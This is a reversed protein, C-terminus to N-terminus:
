EQDRSRGILYEKVREFFGKSEPLVDRNETAAFRRLLEEQERNLRKPIEVVVEVIQNGRRGHRLNPLGKGPLQFVTGHQTGPPIRLPASGTLTPVEVQGGLAAQTFSIPLRCILHDGDRQLFPHERVRIVCRLDGRGTGHPGPEGEGRLRISQGDHVGAPIKVELVRERRTRGSGGCSQCPKQVLWGRGHCRPCDVIARSVFFGMSTQQEVQGYGGCTPCNRRQTGPECGQGGCRECFDMREFRLSKEVGTLVDELDIELVTQIDIGRDARARRGFADGFLDGLLDGFVSFIDDVAMGSFDHLGVGSLGAHGYRDYRARKEPDSLVEYAEAAEKFKEEAGPEKNRDPHYKLAAQRYARKIEEPSASRSVGLVEYYDRKTAVM